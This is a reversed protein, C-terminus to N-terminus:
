GGIGAAVVPAVVSAGVDLPIAVLSGLPASPASPALPLWVAVPLSAVPPSALVVLPPSGPDVLM